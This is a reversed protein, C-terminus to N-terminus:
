GCMYATSFCKVKDPDATWFILFTTNGVVQLKYISKCEKPM